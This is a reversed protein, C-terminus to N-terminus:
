SLKQCHWTTHPIKTGQDPISGTGGANSAQLRLWQVALLTRKNKRNVSDVSSKMGSKHFSEFLWTFTASLTIQRKLKTWGIVAGRDRRSRSGPMSRWIFLSVNQWTETRPRVWSGRLDLHKTFRREDRICIVRWGGEQSLKTKSKIQKKLTKVEQTQGPNGKVLIQVQEQNGQDSKRQFSHSLRYLIRKCHSVVQLAPSRPGMGPNLLDGQLLFHFGVGTNKGPSNWPCLLRTFVTWTTM